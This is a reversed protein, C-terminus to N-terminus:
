RAAHSPPEAQRALFLMVAKQAHLRNEAQQYIVSQTGDIVTDTAENGRYAPMDHMFIADNKACRMIQETVQFPRFVRLRAERELEDGMSVWTDTYVVDAGCAAETWSETETITGGSEAAYCRALAAISRNMWYGRPSCTVLHMGLLGAALALSHTINNESDGFYAIRLGRLKGKHERMTLLDALIQCPHERDSLGNIVPVRSYRALDEVTAHSFTRAMLLDGMRSLVRAVDKVPERKGMEIDEPALYIAHGGLQTMGTEFSVRTRLSPKEFIMVLTKQTFATNHTGAYTEQKLRAADTLVCEIEKGTLDAISLLDRKVNAGKVAATQISAQRSPDAIEQVNALRM